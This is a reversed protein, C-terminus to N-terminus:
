EDTLKSLEVVKKENKLSSYLNQIFQATAEKKGRKVGAAEGLKKGIEKGREIGLREISTIYTMKTSEEIKCVEDNYELVLEPPLQIMWDIFRFLHCVQDRTWGKEYLSRTLRVKSVLHQKGGKEKTLAMAELQALIVTAFPNTSKALAEKKTQYSLM